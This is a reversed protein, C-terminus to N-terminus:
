EEDDDSYEEDSEESEVYGENDDDDYETEELDYDLLPFVDQDNLFPLVLPIISDAGCTVCAEHRANAFEEDVRAKWRAFELFTMKEESLVRLDFSLSFDEGEMEHLKAKWLALELQTMNDKLLAYHESKYHDIRQIVGEIWRRIAATKEDTPTNPLVQNISGIEDKMENRWRELLLSEITKHIGGVLDVQSLNGCEDFLGDSLLNDKLPIVIRRLRPCDGFAELEIRELDESM